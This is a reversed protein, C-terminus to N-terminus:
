LDFQPHLNSHSYFYPSIAEISWVSNSGSPSNFLWFKLNEESKILFNSWLLNKIKVRKGDTVKVNLLSSLLLGKVM